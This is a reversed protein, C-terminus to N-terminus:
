GTSGFRSRGGRRPEDGDSLSRPTTVQGFVDGPRRGALPARAPPAQGSLRLRPGLRSPFWFAVQGRSVPLTRSAALRCPRMVGSRGCAPQWAAYRLLFPLVLGRVLIKEGLGRAPGQGTAPAEPPSCLLSFAAGGAPGAPPRASGPAQPKAGCRPHQPLLAPFPRM